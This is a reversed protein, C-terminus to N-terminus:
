RAPTGAPHDVLRLLRSTFTALPAWAAPPDATWRYRTETLEDGITLEFITADLPPDPQRVHCAVTTTELSEVLADLASADVPVQTSVLTPKQTPLDVALALPRLLASADRERNRSALDLARRWVTRVVYLEGTAARRIDRAIPDDFTPITLLLAVRGGYASENVRGERLLQIAHDFGPQRASRPRAFPIPRPLRM